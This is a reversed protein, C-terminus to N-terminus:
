FMYGHKRAKVSSHSDLIIQRRCSSSSSPSSSSLLEKVLSSSSSQQSPPSSEDVVVVVDDSSPMDEDLSSAAAATTSLSSSSPCCAGDFVVRRKKEGGCRDRATDDVLKEVLAQLEALSDDGPPDFSSSPVDGTTASLRCSFFFTLNRWLVVVLLDCFDDINISKVSSGSEHRM